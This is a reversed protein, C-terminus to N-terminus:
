TPPWEVPVNTPTLIVLASPAPAKGPVIAHGLAAQGNAAAQDGRAAYSTVFLFSGFVMLGKSWDIAQRVSMFRTRRAWASATQPGSPCTPNGFGSDKRLTVQRSSRLIMPAPM